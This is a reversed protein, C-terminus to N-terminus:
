PESSINKIYANVKKVEEIKMDRKNQIYFM